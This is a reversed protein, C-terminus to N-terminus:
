SDRDADDTALLRRFPGDRAALDAPVGVQVVRGHDVVAVVDAVSV